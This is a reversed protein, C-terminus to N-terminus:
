WFKAAIFGRADSRTSFVLQSNVYELYQETLYGTGCNHAFETWNGSQPDYSIFYPTTFYDNFRSGIVGGAVIMQQKAWIAPAFARGKPARTTDLVRWRGTSIDFAAGTKTCANVATSDAPNCDGQRDVGGWILMESGTWVTSQLFRATLAAPPAPLATWVDTNPDYIAGDSLLSSQQLGSSHYTIDQKRGGWVVIQSGTWVASFWYRLSPQQRTSMATWQSNQPDFIYGISYLSTTVESVSSGWILVRSGTWVAFARNLPLSPASSLASWVDLNADYIVPRFDAKSNKAETTLEGGFILFRDSGIAIVKHGRFFKNLPSKSIPHWEYTKLSMIAGAQSAFAGGVSLIYSNGAAYSAESGISPSWLPCNWEDAITDISEKPSPSPAPSVDPLGLSSNGISGDALMGSCNQFALFSFAILSLIFANRTKALRKFFSIM